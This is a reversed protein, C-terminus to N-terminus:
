AYDPFYEILVQCGGFTLKVNEVNIIATIIKM